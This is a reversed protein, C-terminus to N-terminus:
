SNTGSIIATHGNRNLSHAEETSRGDIPREKGYSVTTVRNPDIGQSVLFDKVAEARRAGLALNYERTGREDAHGGIVVITAPYSQLWQSQARLVTMAQASLTAENYGFFVRDGANVSFDEISGPIPGMEIPPAMEMQQPMPPTYQAVPPPPSPAINRPAEVPKEMQTIQAPVEDPKTACGTTLLTASSLAVLSLYKYNM